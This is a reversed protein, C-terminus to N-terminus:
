HTHTAGAGLYSFFYMAFWGVAFLAGFVALIALTGRPHDVDVNHRL